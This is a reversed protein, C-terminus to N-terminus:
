VLDMWMFALALSSLLICLIDLWNLEGFVYAFFNGRASVLEYFLLLGSLLLCVILLFVSNNYFLLHLVLSLTYAWFVLAHIIALRKVMSWKYNIIHKMDSLVVEKMCKTLGKFFLLSFSTGNHLNIPFKTIRYSIEHLKKENKIMSRNLSRPITDIYNTKRM